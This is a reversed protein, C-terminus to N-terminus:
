RTEKTENEKNKWCKKSFLNRNRRIKIRTIQSTEKECHFSLTRIEMKINRMRIRIKRRTGKWKKKVRKMNGKRKRVRRINVRKTDVRRMQEKRKKKNFLKKEFVNHRKEKELVKTNWETAKKATKKWRKRHIVRWYKKEKNNRKKEKQKKWDQEKSFHM